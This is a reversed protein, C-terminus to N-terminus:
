VQFYTFLLELPLNKALPNEVYWSRCSSTWVLEEMMADKHEQFEAVAEPTPSLCKVGQTQIKEVVDFAYRLTQELCAILSGNALPFNPGTAM